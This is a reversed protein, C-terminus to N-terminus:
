LQLRNIDWKLIVYKFYENIFVTYKFIFMYKFLFMYKFIFM